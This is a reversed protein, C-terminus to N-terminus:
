KRRIKECPSKRAPPRGDASSEGAQEKYAAALRGFMEAYWWDGRIRAEAAHKEFDAARRRFHHTLGSQM